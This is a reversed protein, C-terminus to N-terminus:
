GQVRWGIVLGNLRLAQAVAAQYSSASLETFRQVTCASLRATDGSLIAIRYLM